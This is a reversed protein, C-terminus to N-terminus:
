GYILSAQLLWCFWISPALFPGFPLRASAWLERSRRLQRMLHFTLAALAAIEVCVPMTTWDLWAGAVAALKVDGLGLGQRGRLRRFLERLLLFISALVAGRAATMAADELLIRLVSGRDSAWCNAFALGFAAANLEDPIVFYRMDIIAIALMLLALAAGIVGPLGPSVFLSATIALGAVVGLTLLRPGSM